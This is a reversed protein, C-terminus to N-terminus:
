LMARKRGRRPTHGNSSARETAIRQLLMSAPEDTPDQPVLNGTFASALIASRITTSRARESDLVSELEELISNIRDIERVIRAQEGQPPLPIPMSRLDAINVGKVAVGRARQHLYQLGPPSMLYAAIFSADIEPVPAIRAVDRSVNAGAVEPPVVLARDYSGRIALVVDGSYLESRSFEEHLAASTRHLTSVDLRNARLDKVEVYPVTGGERTRPMLIGYCITRNPDTVAELSAVAWAEPVALDASPVAPHREGGREKAVTALLDTGTGEARDQDVLRGSVAAQLVAARMRKLNQGIRELAVVGADLRSFQEEIAAVIRRQEELPAIPIPLGRFRAHTLNLGSDSIGTKMRDIALRATSSQLYFAVYRADMCREPVRFRYMKGSMMLHSRTERVLCSIGCRARPGACTILIDGPQVEILPRPTMRDPLRKNYEPLFLGDQIATTKLVGWVDESESSEKECQPSWGQHLTRGDALVAFIDEISAEAWGPSLDNM